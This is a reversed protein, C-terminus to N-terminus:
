KLVDFIKRSLIQTKPLCYFKSNYFIMIEILTRNRECGTKLGEILNRREIPSTIDLVIRTSQESGEKIRNGITDPNTTTICKLDSELFIHGRSLFVDFKKDNRKFYGNPVLIVDYDYATLKKSTHHEHPYEWEKCIALVVRKTDKDQHHTILGEIALLKKSEELKVTKNGQKIKEITKKFVSMDFEAPSTNTPSSFIKDIWEPLAM